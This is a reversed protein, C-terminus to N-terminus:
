KVDYVFEVGGCIVTLYQPTIELIRANQVCDGVKAMEVRGDSIIIAKTRGDKGCILGKFTIGPASVSTAEESSEKEIEVFDDTESEYFPDRYNLKLSDSPIQKVADQVIPNDTNDELNEPYIMKWIRVAIVGWVSVVLPVLVFLLTKKRM